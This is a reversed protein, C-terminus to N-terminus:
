LKKRRPLPFMEDMDPTWHLGIAERHVRFEWIARRAVNWQDNFAEVREARETATELEGFEAELVDLKLLAVNIKDEARRLAEAMEELIEEELSKSHRVARMRQELRELYPSQFERKRLAEVLNKWLPEAAM